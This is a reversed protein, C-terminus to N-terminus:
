GKKEFGHHARPKRKKAPKPDKKVPLTEIPRDALTPDIKFLKLWDDVEQTPLTTPAGPSASPRPKGTTKAAQANLNAQYAALEAAFDESPLVQAHLARANAQVQRDATVVTANRAAKGMGVLHLRIAEDATRGAPVFHARVLGFDRQGAQGIPAGDFFVEIKKRKARAYAQLIALLRAEDDVESLSLGRIKPILNHGDIVLM